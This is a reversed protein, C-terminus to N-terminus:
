RDARAAEVLREHELLRDGVVGEGTLVTALVFPEELKRADGLGALRRLLDLLREVKLDLLKLFLRDPGLLQLLDLVLVRRAIEAAQLIAERQHRLQKQAVVPAPPVGDVGVRARTCATVASSMRGRRWVGVELGLVARDPM